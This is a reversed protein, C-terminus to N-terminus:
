RSEPAAAMRGVCRRSEAAGAVGGSGGWGAESAGVGQGGGCGRSPTGCPSPQSQDMWRCVRTRLQGVVPAVPPPLRAPAPSCALSVRRQGEETGGEVVRRGSGQGGGSRVRGSISMTCRQMCPRSYFRTSCYTRRTHQQRARPPTQQTRQGSRRKDCAGMRPGLGVGARTGERLGWGWSGSVWGVRADGEM